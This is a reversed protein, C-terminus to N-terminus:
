RAFVVLLNKCEGSTGSGASEILYCLGQAANNRIRNVVLVRRDRSAAVANCKCTSAVVRDVVARTCCIEIGAAIGFRAAVFLDKVGIKRASNRSAALLDGRCCRCIRAVWDVNEVETASHAAVPTVDREFGVGVKLILISGGAGVVGRERKVQM